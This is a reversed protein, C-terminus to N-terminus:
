SVQTGRIPFCRCSQLQAHEFSFIHDLCQLPAATGVSARKVRVRSLRVRRIRIAQYSSESAPSSQLIGLAVLRRLRTARIGRSVRLSRQFDSFRRVGDFADRVILM